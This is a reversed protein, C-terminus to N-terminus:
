HLEHISFDGGVTLNKPLATLNTCENISFKGDVSLSEPLATLDTCDYISFKGDVSLNEPLATIEVLFLDGAVQYHINNSFNQQSILVEMEKGTIKKIQLASASSLTLSISQLSESAQSESTASDTKEEATSSRSETDSGSTIPAQKIKGSFFAATQSSRQYQGSSSPMITLIDAGIELRISGDVWLRNDVGTLTPTPMPMPMTSTSTLKRLLEGEEETITTLMAKQQTPTPSM